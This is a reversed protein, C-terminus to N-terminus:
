PRVSCSLIADSSVLEQLLLLVSQSVLPQNCSEPSAQFDPGPHWVAVRLVESGREISGTLTDTGLLASCSMLRSKSEYSRSDAELGRTDKTFTLIGSRADDPKQVKM